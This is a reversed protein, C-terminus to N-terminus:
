VKPLFQNFSDALENECGLSLRADMIRPIYKFYEVTFENAYLFGLGKDDDFLLTDKMIKNFSSSVIKLMNISCDLISVTVFQLLGSCFGKQATSCVSRIVSFQQSVEKYKKYDHILSIGTFSKFWTALADFKKIGKENFNQNNQCHSYFPHKLVDYYGEPFCHYYLRINWSLKYLNYENDKYLLDFVKTDSTMYIFDKGAQIVERDVLNNDLFFKVMEFDSNLIAEYFVTHRPFRYKDDKMVIFKAAEYTSKNYLVGDWDSLKPAFGRDLLWIVLKKDGVDVAARLIETKKMYDLQSQRLLIMRRVVQPVGHKISYIIDKDDFNAGLKLLKCAIKSNRVEIMTKLVKSSWVYKGGSVSFNLLGKLISNRVKVDSKYGCGYAYAIPEGKNPVGVLSTLKDIISEKNRELAIQFVQSLDQKQMDDSKLLFSAIEDRDFRLAYEVDVSSIHVKPSIKLENRGFDDLFDFIKLHGYDIAKKMLEVIKAKTLLPKAQMLFVELIENDVGFYIASEIINLANSEAGIGIGKEEVLFRVLESSGSELAAELIVDERYILAGKDLLLKFARLDGKKAAILLHDDNTRLNLYAYNALLYNLTEHQYGKIAALIMAIQESSNLWNALTDTKKEVIKIVETRGRKAAKLLEKKIALQTLKKYEALMGEVIEIKGLSVSERFTKVILSYHQEQNLFNASGTIIIKVIDWKGVEIAHMILKKNDCNLAFKELFATCNFNSYLYELVGINSNIVAALIGKDTFPFFEERVYGYAKPDKKIKSILEQISSLENHACLLDVTKELVKPHDYVVDLKSIVYKLVGVKENKLAEIFAIRLYYEPEDIETTLLGMKVIDDQLALHKFYGKLFPNEEGLSNHM